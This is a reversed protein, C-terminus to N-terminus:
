KEDSSSLTPLSFRFTTGGEPNHTYTLTGGHFEIATRCINLGMGMGEAKTSFFPSFLREAVEDSIGEGLDSISVVVRPVGDIYTLNAHINLIRRDPDSAQMAEVANRTLNLLVQELLTRDALVAPLNPAVHFHVSVFATNAQLRVLPLVSDLLAQISVSQRSPERQKVFAHVSRIIQGARQAQASAKELASKLLEPNIAGDSGNLLNLAGTTYSSIATLPQNLE